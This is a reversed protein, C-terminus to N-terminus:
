GVKQLTVIRPIGQLDERISLLKWIRSDVMREVEAGQNFGIEILLHGGPKLFNESECLLRRIITLGDGGPTLAEHPEYDRVEVQLGQLESCAIYPPNSVILDFRTQGSKLASFINAAIFCIREIVGHRKANRGAVQLATPSIDIGIAHARTREHLLAVAICGSGTGVDCLLSEENIPLISTALEVLLETEPRPILVAPTVEFDLGFFAQRGTIYQLPEGSARRTVVKRFTELQEASILEDAHAITFTRDREIVHELLSSAERRPESIGSHRLTRAAELITEGITINMENRKKM